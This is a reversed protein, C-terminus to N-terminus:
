RRTTRIYIEIEECTLVSDTDRDASDFGKFLANGYELLSLRGDSDRDAARFGEASLETLEVIVLYGDKERDRFFLAEVIM